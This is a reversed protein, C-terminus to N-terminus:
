DWLITEGEGIADVRPTKLWRLAVGKPGNVVVRQWAEGTQTDLLILGGYPRPAEFIQFRPPACWWGGAGQKPAMAPAAWAAGVGLGVLLLAIWFAKKM